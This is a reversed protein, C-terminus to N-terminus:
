WFFWSLAVVCPPRQVVENLRLSASDFLSAFGYDTLATDQVDNALDEGDATVIKCKVRLFIEPATMM